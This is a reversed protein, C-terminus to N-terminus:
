PISCITNTLTGKGAVVTAAAESLCSSEDAALEYDGPPLVIVYEGASVQQMAAVEGAENLATIEYAGRQCVFIGPAPGGSEYLGGLIWGDGAPVDSPAKATPCYVPAQGVRLAVATSLALVRGSGRLAIRLALTSAAPPKWSLEFRGNRIPARKAISWRGGSEPRDELAIHEGALADLVRGHLRVQEGAALLTPIGGALRVRPVALEHAVPETAAHARARASSSAAAAAVPLACMGLLPMAAAAIRAKRAIRALRM